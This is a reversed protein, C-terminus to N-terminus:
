AVGNQSVFWIYWDLAFKKSQQRMFRSFIGGYATATDGDLVGAKILAQLRFTTHRQAARLTMASLFQM